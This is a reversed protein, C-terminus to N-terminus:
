KKLLSPICHAIQQLPHGNKNLLSRTIGGEIISIIALSLRKAEEIEYGNKMIHDFYVKEWAEFATLCANRLPESKLATEAALLGIPIGVLQQTNDFHQAISKIHNQIGEVLPANSLSAQIDSAVITAMQNVGEVALQEKGNPFHYYLSGKPADSEKLIQNIGTAHYGQINFLRTAAQLIKERSDCKNNM